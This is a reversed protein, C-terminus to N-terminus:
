NSVLFGMTILTLSTRQCCRTCGSSYPTNRARDSESEEQTSEQPVFTRITAQISGAWANGKYEAIANTLGLNGFNKRFKKNWYAKYKEFTKTKQVCGKGLFNAQQGELGKLMKLKQRHEKVVLM